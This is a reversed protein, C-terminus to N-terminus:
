TSIKTAHRAKIITHWGNFKDRKDLAEELTEATYHRMWAWHVAYKYPTDKYAYKTIFAIM